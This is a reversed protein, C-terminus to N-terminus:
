KSTIDDPDNLDTNNDNMNNNDNDHETESDKNGLIDILSDSEIEGRLVISKRIDYDLKCFKLELIELYIINSIISILHKIEGLLFKIPILYNSDLKIIFFYNIIGEIFFTCNKNILIVNPDLYKIMMVNMIKITTYMIFYLPIFLFLELKDEFKDALDYESNFFYTINDYYFSLNVNSENQEKGTYFCIENSLNYIRNDKRYSKNSYFNEVDLTYCPYSSLMFSCITVLICGILGTSILLKYPNIGRIDMLYKARVWSFDKSIIGIIFLLFILIILLYRNKLKESIIKIIELLNNDTLYIEKCEEDNCNDSSTFPLLYSAIDIFIIPIIIIIAAKHHNKIKMKLILYSFITISILELVWFDNELALFNNALNVIIKNFSIFFGIFLVELYNYNKKNELYKERQRQVKAMSKRNGTKGELINYIFYLIIGSFIFGLFEIFVKVLKHQNLKAYFRFIINIEKANKNMKNLGLSYDSIFQCIIAILLYRHYKTLKGIGILM